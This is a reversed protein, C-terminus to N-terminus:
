ARFLDSVSGSSVEILTVIQPPVLNEAAEPIKKVALQGVKRCHRRVEQAPLDSCTILENAAPIFDRLSSLRRALDM